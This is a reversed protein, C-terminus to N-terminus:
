PSDEHMGISHNWAWRICHPTQHTKPVADLPVPECSVLRARGIHKCVVQGAAWIVDVGVAHAHEPYRKCQYTLRTRLPLRYADDM